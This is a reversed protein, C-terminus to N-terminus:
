CLRGASISTAIDTTTGRPTQAAASRRWVPQKSNCADLNVDVVLTAWAVRPEDLMRYAVGRHGGAWGRSVGSM